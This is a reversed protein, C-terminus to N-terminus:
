YQFDHAGKNVTVLLNQFRTDRNSRSEHVTLVKVCLGVRFHYYKILNSHSHFSSPFPSPPPLISFYFSQSSFSFQIFLCLVSIHLFIYM